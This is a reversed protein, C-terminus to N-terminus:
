FEIRIIVVGDVSTVKTFEFRRTDGINDLDGATFKLTIYM